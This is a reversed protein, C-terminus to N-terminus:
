ELIEAESRPSLVIFSKGTCLRHLDSHDHGAQLHPPLNISAKSLSLVLPATSGWHVQRALLWMVLGIQVFSAWIEHTELLGFITTDVDASILTLTPSSDDSTSLRSALAAQYTACILAGRVMAVFRYM